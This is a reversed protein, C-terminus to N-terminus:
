EVDQRSYIPECLGVQALFPQQLTFGDIKTTKNHVKPLLVKIIPCRIRIRMCSLAVAFAGSVMLPAGERGSPGQDCMQWKGKRSVHEKIKLNMM